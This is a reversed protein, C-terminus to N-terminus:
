LEKADEQKNKDGIFIAQSVLYTGALFLLLNKWLVPVGLFPLLLLAIGIWMLVKYSENM